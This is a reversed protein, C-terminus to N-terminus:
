RRSARDPDYWPGFARNRLYLDGDPNRMAVWMIDSQDFDNFYGCQVAGLGAHRLHGPHLALYRGYAASHLLVYSNRRRPVRHVAWVTNLTERFGSLSVGVGDEDAQLYTGRVLSRLRVHARDIFLDEM